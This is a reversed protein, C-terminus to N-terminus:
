SYSDWSQLHLHLNYIIGLFIVLTHILKLLYFIYFTTSVDWSQLHLHSLFSAPHTVYPQANCLLDMFPLLINIMGNQAYIAYLNLVEGWTLSHHVYISLIKVGQMHDHAARAAWCTGPIKSKHAAQYLHQFHQRWNSHIPGHCKRGWGSWSHLPLARWHTKHM